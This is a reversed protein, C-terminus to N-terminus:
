RAIPHPGFFAASLLSSYWLGLSAGVVWLWVGSSAQLRSNQGGRAVLRGIRAKVWIFAIASWMAPLVLWASVLAGFSPGGTPGASVLIQSLVLFQAFSLSKGPKGYDSADVMVQPWGIKTLAAVALFGLILSGLFAASNMALHEEFAEDFCFKAATFGPSGDLTFIVTNLDIVNYDLLKRIDECNLPGVNGFPTRAFHQAKANQYASTSLVGASMTVGPVVLALFRKDSGIISVTDNTTLKSSAIWEHLTELSKATSTPGDHHHVLYMANCKLSADAGRHGHEAISIPTTSVVDGDEVKRSLDALSLEDAAGSALHAQYKLDSPQVAAQSDLESEFLGPVVAAPTKRDDGQVSLATTKTVIGTVVWDKLMSVDAPGFTTGDALHVLYLQSDSV